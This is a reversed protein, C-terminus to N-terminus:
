GQYLPLPALDLIKNPKTNAKTFFRSTRVHSVANFSCSYWFYKLSFSVAYKVM